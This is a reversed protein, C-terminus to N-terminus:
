CRFRSGSVLPGELNQSPLRFPVMGISGAWLFNKNNGLRELTGHNGSTEM